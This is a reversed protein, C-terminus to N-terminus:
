FVQYKKKKVIYELSMCVGLICLYTLSKFHWYPFLKVSHNKARNPFDLDSRLDLEENTFYVIHM